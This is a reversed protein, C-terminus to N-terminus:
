EGEAEPPNAWRRFDAWADFLGVLALIQPAWPNLLVLLLLGARLFPPGALRHAYYAVVALGQVAFFFATVLVVNYGVSRLPVLAVMAGGLVFLVPLALSFRLGEFEGGELWGPDRRALYARVLAANALIVLAALVLLAGPYVVQMMNYFATAQEAWDDVNQQPLRTRMEALFEPSRFADFPGLVTEAVRPAAVLLGALIEFALLAFAWGVGRRLGRGRFVAELMLLVPVVLVALFGVALGPSLLWSVLSASLAVALLASGRGRNVRHVALPLPSVAAIPWLMPAVGLVSFLVTSALASGIIGGARPEPREGAHAEVAM